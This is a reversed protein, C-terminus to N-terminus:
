KENEAVLVVGKRKRSQLKKEVRQFFLSPLHLIERQGSKRTASIESSRNRLIERLTVCAGPVSLSICQLTLSRLCAPFDKRCHINM